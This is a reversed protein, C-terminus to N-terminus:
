GKLKEVGILKQQTKADGMVSTEEADKRKTHVKLIRQNEQRVATSKRMAWLQERAHAHTKELDVIPSPYDKGLEFGYFAQDLTTMKWPEHAFPTPLTTLEPVWKKIFEAQPDHEQAQKVPNYIRITNVGMTGAQMQFQSYHIGPEYDLFQRALHHVGSQWPQWLQHTLFSVLMSRMRFNLYGTACVCRMCADVLPIGTQGEAWAKVLTPDTVQRIQDFGRNLNEFEMRCEAEFKQIFHSQWFLRSTFQQLNYKDGSSKIRAQTIQFVQRTSLNGWTLYPSLRSCSRRAAEPKSIHKFYSKSRENLFSSLYRHAPGEGGPQMLLNHQELEPLITKLSFRQKWKKGLVVGQFKAWNPVALPENMHAIFQQEWGKRHFLRRKVGNTQFEQWQIGQNQCFDAVALDRDFTIRNGTEVHSFISQIQYEAALKELVELVEAHFIALIAGKNKLQAQMDQLSQWVFRWHRWDSDPSNMWSPEFCYMLITPLGSEMAMKLPAHDNLRLDRKFWVIQINTNSGQM